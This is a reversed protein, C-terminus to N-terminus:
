AFAVGRSPSLVPVPLHKCGQVQVEACDRSSREGRVEMVCLLKWPRAAAPLSGMLSWRASCDTSLGACLSTAAVGGLMGAGALLVADDDGRVWSLRVAEFLPLM